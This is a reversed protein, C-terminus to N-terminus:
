LQSKAVDVRPRISVTSPRLGVPAATHIVIWERSSSSHSVVLTDLSVRELKKPCRPCCFLLKGCSASFFPLKTKPTGGTRPAPLHHLALSPFFQKCRGLLHVDVTTVWRRGSRSAISVLAARGLAIRHHQAVPRADLNECSAKQQTWALVSQCRQLGLDWPRQRTSVLGNM